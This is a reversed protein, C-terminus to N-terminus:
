KKGFKERLKADKRQAEELEEKRAQAAEVDGTLLTCLDPRHRADSPLIAEPKMIPFMEADRIDWYRRGDFELFGLYTGYIRNVTKGRKKIEGTFFDQPKKPVTGFTISAVIDNQKDEYKLTGIAQHRM